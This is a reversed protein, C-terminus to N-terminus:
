NWPWSDSRHKSKARSVAWISRGIWGAALLGVITVLEGAIPWQHRLVGGAVVVAAAVMAKPLLAKITKYTM